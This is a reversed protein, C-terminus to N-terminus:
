CHPHTYLLSCCVNMGPMDSAHEFPVLLLERSFSSSYSINPRSTGPTAQRHSTRSLLSWESREDADASKDM